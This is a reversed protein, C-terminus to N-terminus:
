QNIYVYGLGRCKFEDPMQRLSNESLWELLTYHSVGLYKACDKSNKFEKGDIQIRKYFSNDKGKHSASLRQKRGDTNSNELNTTWYLNEVRNDEKNRNDDRHGVQPLSDPNPIFATAVLRSVLYTKTKCDRTFSVNLYGKANKSFKRLREKYHLEWGNKSLVVREVSKIRGLNSVQYYGEYGAIDKWVEEQM